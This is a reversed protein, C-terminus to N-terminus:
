ERILQRVDANIISFLRQQKRTKPHEALTYSVWRRDDLKTLKTQAFGLSRKTVKAVEEAFLPKKSNALAELVQKESEDLRSYLPKLGVREGLNKYKTM